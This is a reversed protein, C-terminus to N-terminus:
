LKDIKIKMAVANKRLTKSQIRRASDIYDVGIGMDADAILRGTTDQRNFRKALGSVFCIPFELGKSKHISMIRVVNANEDSIDAEGYDM